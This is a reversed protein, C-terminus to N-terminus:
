YCPKWKVNSFRSNLKKSKIYLKFPWVSNVITEIAFLKKVTISFRSFQYFLYLDFYLMLIGRYQAPAKCSTGLWVNGSLWHVDSTETSKPINRRGDPVWIWVIEQSTSIHGGENEWYTHIRTIQSVASREGSNDLNQELCLCSLQLM